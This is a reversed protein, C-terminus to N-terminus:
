ERTDLRSFLSCSGDKLFDPDIIGSIGPDAQKGPPLREKGVNLTISRFIQKMFFLQQLPKELFIVFGSSKLNFNNWNQLLNLVTGSSRFVM